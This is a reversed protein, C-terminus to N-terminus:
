ENEKVEVSKLIFRKDFAGKKKRKSKKVKNIKYKTICKIKRLADIVELIDAFEEILSKNNTSDRAEIAEEVLKDQLYKIYESDKYAIKYKGTSKYNVIIQPIKDRVLKNYKIINAM